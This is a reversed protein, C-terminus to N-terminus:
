VWLGYCFIRFNVLLYRSTLSYGHKRVDEVAGMEIWTFFDDVHRVYM